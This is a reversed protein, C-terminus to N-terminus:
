SQPDLVKGKITLTKPSEDENLTVNVTKSFSGVTAANYTAKVYATEGPKVPTKTYDTATCGCAAKVNTIIVTQKTTNVFTFNHSVPTGKKIEGFDHTTEKWEVPSAPKKPAPTTTMAPKAAVSKAEQAFGTTSVFIGMVAILAIKITKM